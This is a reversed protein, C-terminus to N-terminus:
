PLRVGRAKAWRELMRREDALALRNAFGRVQVARNQYDLEITLLRKTAGDARRRLSWISARGSICKSAYTWVCHQMARSEHVLDAATLLQVVSFEERRARADKESPHWSWDALSAGKWSGGQSPEVDEGHRRADLLARQRAAEIRAIVAADRHWEEM